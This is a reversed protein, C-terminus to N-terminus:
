ALEERITLFADNNANPLPDDFPELGAAERLGALSVDVLALIQFKTERDAGRWPGSRILKLIAAENLQDLRKYGDLLEVLGRAASRYPGALVADRREARWKRWFKLQQERDVMVKKVRRQQATELRRKQPRSM